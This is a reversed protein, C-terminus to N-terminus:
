VGARRRRQQPSGAVTGSSGRVVTEGM